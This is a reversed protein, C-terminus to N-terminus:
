IFSLSLGKSKIGFICNYDDYNQLFRLNKIKSFTRRKCTKPVNINGRSTRLLIVRQTFCVRLYHTITLLPASSTLFRAKFRFIRLYLLAAEMRSSLIAAVVSEGKLSRQIPGIQQEDCDSRRTGLKLNSFLLHSKKNQGDEITDDLIKLPPHRRLRYGGRNFYQIGM